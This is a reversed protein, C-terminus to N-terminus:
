IAGDMYLVALNCKAELDDKESAKKYWKLAKQYDKQVRRGRSYIKGLYLQAKHEDEEALKICEELPLEDYNQVKKPPNSPSVWNLSKVICSIAYEAVERKTGYEEEMQNICDNIVLQKINYDSDNVKLLKTPISENIVNGLIKRDRSMNPMYDAILGIIKQKNYFVEKGYDKVINSLVDAVKTNDSTDGGWNSM